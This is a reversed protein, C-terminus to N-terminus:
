STLPPANESKTRPASANKVTTLRYHDQCFEFQGPNWSPNYFVAHRIGQISPQRQKILQQQAAHCDPELEEVLIKLGWQWFQHHLKKSQKDNSFVGGGFASCQGHL